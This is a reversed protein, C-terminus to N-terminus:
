GWLGALWLLSVVGAVPVAIFIAVGWFRAAFSDSKSPRMIGLTCRGGCVVATGQPREPV